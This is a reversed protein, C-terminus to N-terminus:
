LNSFSVSTKHAINTLKITTPNKYKLKKKVNSQMVKKENKMQTTWEKLPATTCNPKQATTNKLTRKTKNINQKIRNNKHTYCLM